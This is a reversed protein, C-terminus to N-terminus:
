RGVDFRCFDPSITLDFPVNYVILRVEEVDQITNLVLVTSGLHQRREVIFVDQRYDENTRDDWHYRFGLNM